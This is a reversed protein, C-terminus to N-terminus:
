LFCVQLATDLIALNLSAADTFSGGFGIVQQYEKEIHVHLNQWGGNHEHEFETESRKLRDGSKSTQYIVAKGSNIAGIADVSDCYDSTCECVSGYEKKVPKCSLSSIPTFALFLSLFLVFKNIM